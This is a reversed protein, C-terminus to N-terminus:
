RYLLTDFYQHIVSFSKWTKRGFAMCVNKWNPCQSPIWDIQLHESHFQSFESEPKSLSLLLIWQLYPTVCSPHTPTSVFFWWLKLITRSSRFKHKTIQQPCKLHSQKIWQLTMIPTLMAVTGNQCVYRNSINKPSLKHISPSFFLSKQCLSRRRECYFFSVRCSYRFHSGILQM